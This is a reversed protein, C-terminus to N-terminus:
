RGATLGGRSGRKVAIERVADDATFPRGDAGV